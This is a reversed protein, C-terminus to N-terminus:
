LEWRQHEATAHREGLLVIRRDAAEGIVEDPKLPKAKGPEVWVGLPPCGPPDAAQAAQLVALSFLLAALPRM